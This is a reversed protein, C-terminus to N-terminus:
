PQKTMGNAMLILLALNLLHVCTLVRGLRPQPCAPAGMTAVGGEESQWVFVDRWCREAFRACSVASRSRERRWQRRQRRALWAGHGFGAQPQALPPQPKPLGAVKARRLRRSASPHGEHRSGRARLARRDVRAGVGHLEALVRRRM